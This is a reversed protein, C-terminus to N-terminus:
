TSLKHKVQIHSGQRQKHYDLPSYLQPVSWGIEGACQSKPRPHAMSRPPRWLYAVESTGEPSMSDEGIYRPPEPDVRVRHDRIGDPGSFTM